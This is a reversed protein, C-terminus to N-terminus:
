IPSAVQLKKEFLFDAEENSSTKKNFIKTPNTLRPNINFKKMLLLMDSTSTRIAKTAMSSSADAAAQANTNAAAEVISSSSRLEDTNFSEEASGTGLSSGNLSGEISGQKVAQKFILADAANAGVSPDNGASIAGYTSGYTVAEM